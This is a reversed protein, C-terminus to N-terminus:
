PGGPDSRNRNKSASHAFCGSTRFAHSSIAAFCPNRSFSILSASRTKPKVSKAKVAPYGTKMLYSELINLMHSLSSASVRGVIIAHGLGLLQPIEAKNVGTVRQETDNLLKYVQLHRGRERLLPAFSNSRYKTGVAGYGSHSVNRKMGKYRAWHHISLFLRPSLFVLKCVFCDHSPVGCFAQGGAM